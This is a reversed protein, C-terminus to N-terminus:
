TSRRRTVLHTYYHAITPFEPKMNWGLYSSGAIFLAGGTETATNSMFTTYRSGIMISNVVLMAVGYVATNGYFSVNVSGAVKSNLALMAGDYVASKGDFATSVLAVNSSEIYVASGM